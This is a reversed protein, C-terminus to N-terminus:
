QLDKLHAQSVLATTEVLRLSETAAADLATFTNSFFHSIGWLVILIGIARFM